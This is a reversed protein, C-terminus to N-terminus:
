WDQITIDQQASGSGAIKIELFKPGVEKKVTYTTSRRYDGGTVAKGNVSVVLEHDGTGINGTFIRQVGGAQLAELERFTYLHKAVVQNDLKIQVSDLSFKENGISIFLALQTNSPFLLKEELLSLETTLNLVDSKIDQVQEDLSKLEDRTIDTSAFVLTALLMLCAVLSFRVMSNRNLVM